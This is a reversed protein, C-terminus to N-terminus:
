TYTDATTTPIPYTGTSVASAPSSLTMVMYPISLGALTTDQASLILENVGIEAVVEINKMPITYNTGGANLTITGTAHYTGQQLISNNTTGSSDSKKCGTILLGAVVLTVVSLKLKM